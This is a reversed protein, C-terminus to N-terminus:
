HGNSSEKFPSFDKFLLKSATRYSAAAEAATKFYGLCIHERNNTIQAVWMGRSKMYHMGTPIAGSRNKANQAPTCVRLNDRRNDLKNGNIHDVVLGKLASMILRHMYVKHFGKGKGNPNDACAYGSNLYWRYPEILEMDEVDVLTSAKAKGALIVRNFSAPM